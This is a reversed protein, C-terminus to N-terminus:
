TQSRRTENLGDVGGGGRVQTIFGKMSDRGKKKNTLCQLQPTLVGTGNGADEYRWQAALLKGVAKLRAATADSREARLVLVVFLPASDQYVLARHGTRACWQRAKHQLEPDSRTLVDRLRRESDVHIVIDAPRLDHWGNDAAARVIEENIPDGRQAPASPAPLPL